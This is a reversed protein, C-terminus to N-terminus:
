KPLLVAAPGSTRAASLAALAEHRDATNSGFYCIGGLGQELLSRYDDPLTTGGFGPLLVQLALDDLTGNMRPTTM